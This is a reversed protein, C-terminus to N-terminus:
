NEPDKLHNELSSQVMQAEQRLKQVTGDDLEFVKHMGLSDALPLVLEQQVRGMSYELSELMLGNSHITQRIKTMGAPSDLIPQLYDKLLDLKSTMIQIAMESVHTYCHKMLIRWDRSYLNGKSLNNVQIIADAMGRAMPLCLQAALYGARSGPSLNVMQGWLIKRVDLALQDDLSSIALSLKSNRYHIYLSIDLQESTPYENIISAGPYQGQEDLIELISLVYNPLREIEKKLIYNISMAFDKKSIYGGKRDVHDNITKVAKKIFDEMISISEEQVIGRLLKSEMVDKNGSAIAQVVLDNVQKFSNGLFLIFEVVTDESASLFQFPVHQLLMRSARFVARRAALYDNLANTKDLVRGLKVMGASTM